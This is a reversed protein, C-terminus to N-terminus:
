FYFVNNNFTTTYNLFKGCSKTKIILVIAYSIFLLELDKMM